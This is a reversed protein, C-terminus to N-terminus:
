KKKRKGKAKGKTAKAPAPNKISEIAEKAAKRVSPDPDDKALEELKPLASAGAKGFKGLTAAATRREGKSDSSLQKIMSPMATEPEGMELLVLAVKYGNGAWMGQAPHHLMYLAAKRAEASDRMHKIVTAAAFRRVSAGTDPFMCAACSAKLLEAEDQRGCLTKLSAMANARLFEDPEGAAAVLQPIASHAPEGIRGLAEAAGCRVWTNKDSMAKTLAAVADAADAGIGALADCATRRVKWDPNKLLEIMAPVASKGHQAVALAAEIREGPNDSSFAAVLVKVPKTNPAAQKAAAGAATASGCFGAALVIAALTFGHRM